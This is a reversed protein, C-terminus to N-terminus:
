SVESELEFGEEGARTFVCTILELILRSTVQSARIAGKGNFGEMVEEM